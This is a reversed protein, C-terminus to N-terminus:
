NILLGFIGIMLFGTLGRLGRSRPVLWCSLLVALSGFIILSIWSGNAYLRLFELDDDTAAASDTPSVSTGIGGGGSAEGEPPLPPTVPNGIPPPTVPTGIQNGDSDTIPPITEDPLLTDPITATPDTGTSSLGGNEVAKHLDDLGD